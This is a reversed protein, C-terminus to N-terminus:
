QSPQGAIFLVAGIGVKCVGNCADNVTSDNSIEISPFMSIGDTMEIVGDFICYIGALVAMKKVGSMIVETMIGTENFAHASSLNFIMILALIRLPKM